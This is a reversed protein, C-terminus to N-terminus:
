EIRSKPVNRFFRIHILYTILFKMSQKESTQAVLNILLRVETFDFELKSDSIEDEFDKSDLIDKLIDQM